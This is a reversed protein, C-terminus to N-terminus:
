CASWGITGSVSVVASTMLTAAAIIMLRVLRTDVGLTLAEDESLTMVNMRWRLLWLPVMVPVVLSV